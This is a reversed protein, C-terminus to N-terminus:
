ISSHFFVKMSSGRYRMAIEHKSPFDPILFHSFNSLVQEVRLVGISQLYDQSIRAPKWNHCFYTVNKKM